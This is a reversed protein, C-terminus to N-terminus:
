EYFRKTNRKPKTKTNADKLFKKLKIINSQKPKYTSM